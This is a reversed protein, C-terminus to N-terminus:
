SNVVQYSNQPRISLPCVRIQRRAHADGWLSDVVDAEDVLTISGAEIGEM